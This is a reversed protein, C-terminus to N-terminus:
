FKGFEHKIKGQVKDFFDDGEAFFMIAARMNKIVMASRGEKNFRRVSVMVKPTKLLVYKYGEKHMRESLDFDEAFNIHERFGGVAWFSKKKVCIFHGVANPRKKKMMELMLVNVAAFVLDDIPKDSIPEAWSTLIDTDPHKELYNSIKELFDPKIKVDADFFIVWDNKAQKAAYNRQFSVGRKPSKIFKLNLRDAYKTVAGETKDESKGDVVIVEDSKLTQHTLSELLGGVYKEENLTPTCISFKIM